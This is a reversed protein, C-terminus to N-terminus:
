ALVLQYTRLINLLLGRPRSVRSPTGASLRMGACYFNSEQLQSGQSDFRIRTSADQFNIDAAERLKTLEEATGMENMRPELATLAAQQKTRVAKLEASLTDLERSAEKAKNFSVLAASNM